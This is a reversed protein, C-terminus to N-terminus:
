LRTWQGTQPDRWFWISSGQPHELWEYGDDGRRGQWNVSPDEQPTLQAPMEPAASGPDNDHKPSANNKVVLIIATLLFLGGLIVGGWMM